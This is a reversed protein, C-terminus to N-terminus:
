EVACLNLAISQCDEWSPGRTARTAGRRNAAAHDLHEQRAGRRFGADNQGDSKQPPRHQRRAHANSM